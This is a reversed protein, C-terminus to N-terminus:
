IIEQARRICRYKLKVASCRNVLVYLLQCLDKGFDTRGSNVEPLEQQKAQVSRLLLSDRIGDPDFPQKSDRM